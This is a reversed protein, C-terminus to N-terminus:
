KECQVLGECDNRVISSPLGENVIMELIPVTEFHKRIRALHEEQSVASNSITVFGFGNVTGSVMKGIAKRM